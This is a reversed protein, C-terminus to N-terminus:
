WGEGRAVSWGLGTLHLLLILPVCLFRFVGGAVVCDHLREQGGDLVLQEVGAAPSRLAFEAGGQEEVELFCVVALSSM